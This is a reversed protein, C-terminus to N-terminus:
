AARSSPRASRCERRADRRRHLVARGRGHPDAGDNGDGGGRAPGRPEGDLPVVAVDDGRSDGGLRDGVPVAALVLYVGVVCFRSCSSRSPGISAHLLTCRSQCKCDFHSRHSDLLAINDFRRRLWSSRRGARRPRRSSRTRSGSAAEARQVGPAFFSVGFPLGFAFGAPVTIHPYGAVAPMQSCGGSAHDGNIYDTLWAPPGTPAVLADLENGRSRPTSARRARVQPERALAKRYAAGHAAGKEACRGPAGARFVADRHRTAGNFEIVDAAFARLRRPRARRLYADLDAKFEYLLVELEADSSSTTTAIKVPDVISPAPM